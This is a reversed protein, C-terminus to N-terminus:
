LVLLLMCVGGFYLGTILLSEFGINAIGHKERRVLGMLLIATMLLTLSLLFLTQNSAAHYLSGDRYFGDAIAAFLTDFANGGLIGGVALTLAGHRVASITTVLEPLSTVVATLLGGVVAQPINAQETLVVAAHEIFWGAVGVIVALIAFRTWLQAMPSQQSQEEPVDVKTQATQQPKWMPQGRSNQIMRLGALYALLLLPTAPHVNWIM